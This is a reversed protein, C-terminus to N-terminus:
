LDQSELKAKGISILQFKFANIDRSERVLWATDWQDRPLTLCHTRCATWRTFSSLKCSHLPFRTFYAVLIDLGSASAVTYRDNGNTGRYISGVGNLAKQLLQLFELENKQAWGVRFGMNRKQLKASEMNFCGEADTFGSFWATDLSFPVPVITEAPAPLNHMLAWVKITEWTRHLVSYQLFWTYLLMIDTRVSITLRYHGTLEEHDTRTSKVTRVSNPVIHVHGMGLTEQIYLLVDVNRQNIILKFKNQPCPLYADGECFGVFWAKFEESYLKERRTESAALHAPFNVENGAHQGLNKPNRGALVLMTGLIITANGCITLDIVEGECTLLGMLPLLNYFGM